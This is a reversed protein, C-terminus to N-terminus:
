LLVVGVMGRAARWEGDGSVIDQAYAGTALAVTALGVLLKRTM